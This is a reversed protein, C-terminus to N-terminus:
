VAKMKCGACIMVPIALAVPIGCVASIFDGMKVPNHHTLDYKESLKGMVYLAVTYDVNVTFLFIGISLNSVEPDVVTKLMLLAPATWGKAM